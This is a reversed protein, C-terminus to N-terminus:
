TPASTAKPDVAEQTGESSVGKADTPGLQQVPLSVSCPGKENTQKNKETSYM